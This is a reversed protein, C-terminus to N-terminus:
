KGKPAAAAPKAAPAAPVEDPAVTALWLDRAAGFETATLVSAGSGYVLRATTAKVLRTKPDRTVAPLVAVVASLLHAGSADQLTKSM